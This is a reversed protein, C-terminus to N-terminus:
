HYLKFADHIARAVFVSFEARTVYHDPRFTGDRYGNTIGASCLQNIAKYSNMSSNVDLFCSHTMDSLSFARAVLLAVEERTISDKPGYTGNGRGKIIGEEVASQIYGSAYYKQPVDSFVTTTQEIDLGLLRGIIVAANARNIPYQSRFTGDPFGKIGQNSALFQVENAFWESGNLDSFTVMSSTVEVSVASSFQSNNASQDIARIKYTYEGKSVTDRYSHKQSAITDIKNGNRYLEYAVVEQNDQSLSWNLSIVSKSATATFNHPTSPSIIDAKLETPTQVLGYGYLTDKGESGLDVARQHLVDRLRENIVKPNIQEYLAAVGSVYPAAMSTGSKRKYSEGLFSSYINVGPAVLELSSGEASFYPHQNDRDIAGVAMVSKYKAPYQVTNGDDNSKVNGAAGIIIIGSQYAKTLMRQLAKSGNPTALSLNIIDIKNNIAWEIGAIVSSQVGRGDSGLAKIAYLSVGPAVGVTGINNDQAAIIGAVHTGHGSDDEYSNTYNVTSVGGAINLDPHDCDVGTDIVAVKVGKGTVKSDILPKAQIRDIGWNTIQAKTEVVFDKEVLKVDPNKNLRVVSTESLTVALTSLMEFRHRVDGGLKEILDSQPEGRFTVLYKHRTNSATATATAFPLLYQIFVTISLIIAMKKM